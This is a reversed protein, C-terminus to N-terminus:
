APLSGAAKRRAKQAFMNQDARAILGDAGQGDQWEAVGCSAGVRIPSLADDDGNLVVLQDIRSALEAAKAVSDGHTAHALVIGFEDGGLRGVIDTERTNQLLIDSVRILVDDGASHGFADNVKKFHDLDIFILSLPTQFRGALAIERRVEREFARRNFVPCLADNDALLEADALAARLGASEARLAIVEEALAELAARERPRSTALDVGLIDLLARREEQTM